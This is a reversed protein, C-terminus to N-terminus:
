LPLLTAPVTSTIPQARGPGAAGAEVRGPRVRGSGIRGVCTLTTPRPPATASRVSPKLALVMYSPPSLGHMCATPNARRPSPIHHNSPRPRPPYTPDEQVTSRTTKKQSNSASPSTSASLLFIKWAYYMSSNISQNISQNVSLCVSM